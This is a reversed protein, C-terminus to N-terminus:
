QQVSAAAVRYLVREAYGTWVPRLGSLAADLAVDGTDVLLPRGELAALKGPTALIVLNDAGIMRIAPASLQQNGRGFLFGQGGTATLILRRDPYVGLLEQVGHADLNTAQLQRDCVADIGLLSGALGLEGLVAKPTTGTGVLYLVGADMREVVGAAIEARVLVEDLPAACKVHQVLGRVGPVSMEGFFRSVVRDHRFAEEDIDRVEGAELPVPRGDVLRRVVDAAAEPSVAFVGSYMKVGAPIGLVPLRDGVATYVDRATGDGGAFLLLSVGADALARAAAVTDAGTSPRAAPEGCVQMAFGAARLPAAGMDGGWTLWDIQGSLSKLVGLCRAVRLGAQPESGRAIAQDRIVDGDSGRLGAPGGVGAWPNILLGIRLRPSM